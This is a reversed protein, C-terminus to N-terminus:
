AQAWPAHDLDLHGLGALRQVTAVFARTFLRQASHEGYRAIHGHVVQHDHTARTRWDLVQERTLDEIVLEQGDHVDAVEPAPAAVAPRPAPLGTPIVPVAPFDDEPQAAAAEARDQAAAAQRERYLGWEHAQVWVRATVDQPLQKATATRREAESAGPM